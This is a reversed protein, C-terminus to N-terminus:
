DELSIKRVPQFDEPEAPVSVPTITFGDLLGTYQHQRIPQQGTSWGVVLEGRNYQQPTYRAPQSPPTVPQVPRESPHEGRGCSLIRVQIEAFGRPLTPIFVRASDGYMTADISDVEHRIECRELAIRMIYGSMFLSGHIGDSDMELKVTVETPNTM